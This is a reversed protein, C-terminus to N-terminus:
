CSCYENLILCLYNAQFMDAMIYVINPEDKSFSVSLRSNNSNITTSNPNKINSHNSVETQQQPKVFFVISQIIPVTNLLVLGLILQKFWKKRFITILGFVVGILFIAELIYLQYNAALNDLKSFRHMQLTGM